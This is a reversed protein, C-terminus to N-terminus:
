NEAPREISDIVLVDVPARTPELKLGLQETLATRLDPPADPGVGASAASNANMFTLEIDFVGTLATRDRVPRQITYGLFTVLTEISTGNYQFGM